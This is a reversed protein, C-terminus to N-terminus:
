NNEPCTQRETSREVRLSEKRLPRGLCKWLYGVVGVVLGVSHDKDTINVGGTLLAGSFSLPVHRVWARELM